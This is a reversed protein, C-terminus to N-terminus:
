IIKIRPFPFFSLFFIEVQNIQMQLQSILNWKELMMQKNNEKKLQNRNQRQFFPSFFFNMFCYISFFFHFFPLFFFHIVNQSEPFLVRESQGTAEMIAKTKKSYPNQFIKIVGDRSLTPSHRSFFYFNTSPFFFNMFSFNIFFNNGVVIKVNQLPHNKLINLFSKGEIIKFIHHKRQLNKLTTLVM